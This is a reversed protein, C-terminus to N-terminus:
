SRTKQSGRGLFDLRSKALTINVEDIAAVLQGWQGQTMAPELQDWTSGPIPELEGADNLYQVSERALLSYTKTADGGAQIQIERFRDKSIATVRFTVLDDRMRDEVDRVKEQADAAAQEADTVAQELEPYSTSKGLRDDASEADRARALERTATRLATRAEHVAALAQEREVVLAGDLSIEVDRHAFRIGAVRDQLSM